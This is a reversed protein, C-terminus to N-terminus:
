EPRKGRAPPAPVPGVPPDSVATAGLLVPLAESGTAVWELTVLRAAPRPNRWRLLRVYCREGGRARGRWVTEARAPSAADNWAAVEEGYRVPVTEVAGDDYHFRLRAVERGPATPWGTTLLFGFEGIAALGRGELDQLPLLVRAPLPRLPLLPSALALGLPGVTFTYGGLGVRGTPFASLDHDPGYELWGPRSPADALPLNAWLGLDLAFGPRLRPEARGPAWRRNFEEGAAYPLDTFPVPRPKWFYDGALVMASFQRRETALVTEDPFYGAWTTQLMGEAQQRAAEMAFKQINAPVYWTAGIVSRGPRSLVGVSPQVDVDGYHWDVITVDGPLADRIQKAEAPSAAHAADAAEGRDLLLDGWLMVQAGREKLYAHIRAVDRTFLQAFPLQRCREDHPFRGTMRVEDHGIHFRTPNGFLELAEDYVSFLFRYSEENTPCYAFPQAPDEAFTLNQGNRFAWESHGLSNILPTVEMFHARAWAIEARVQEPTAGEAAAIAPQGRWRVGQSELVLHNLKYYALVQSILKKHFPLGRASPFLHAGRFRFLPWDEVRAGHLVPRAGRASLLQRLTQLGYFAGADTRGVVLAGNPTVVLAYGEPSEPVALWAERALHQARAEGATGVWLDAPGRRALPGAPTVQLALGARARWEAAVERAAAAVRPDRCAVIFRCGSSLPLPAPLPLFRQPEPIVLPPGSSPARADKLPQLAPRPSLDTDGAPRPPPGGPPVFRFNVAIEGEARPGLRRDFGAWFVPAAQAWGQRSRRADFVELGATETRIEIQGARTELRLRRADAALRSADRETAVAAYPVRGEARGGGMEASYVAGALLPGHLYGLGYELQAPGAQKFRYRCVIRARDPEARLRYTAAFASNEVKVEGLKATGEEWGRASPVERDLGFLLQTWGPTVVYLTSKLIVPVGRYSLSVGAPGAFQLQVAGSRLDVAPAASATATSAVLVLAALGIRFTTSRRKRGTAAPAPAATAKRM